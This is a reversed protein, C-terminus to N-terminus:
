LLTQPREGPSLGDAARLSLLSSYDERGRLVFLRSLDAVDCKLLAAKQEVDSGGLVLNASIKAEVRKQDMETPYPVALWRGYELAARSAHLSGGSVDSQIMVVGQALGAQTADRRVFLPPLPEIGFAFESVLAGGAALIDDALKQNQSPAVTQLGHALVAITHGKAVLAARHAIADCGFALGSVVTWGQEAFFATIRQTIMMGHVTPERTGVIAVSRMPDPSLVGRVYLLFPSRKASRLILPFHDDVQSIICAGSQRAKEVQQEADAVAREWAVQMEGGNGVAKGVSPVRLALEEISENLYRQESSVKKLAASGVGKLMM